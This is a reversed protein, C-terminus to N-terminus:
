ESGRATADLYREIFPDLADADEGSFQFLWGKIWWFVVHRHHTGASISFSYRNGIHVRSSATGGGYEQTFSEKFQEFEDELREFLLSREQDTMPYVSVFRDLGSGAYMTHIGPKGVVDWYPDSDSRQFGGIQQPFFVGTELVDAPPQWNSAWRSHARERALMEKGAAVMRPGITLAVVAGLVLLIALTILTVICCGARKHKLKDPSRHM